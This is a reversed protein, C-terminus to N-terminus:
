SPPHESNGRLFFNPLSAASPNLLWSWQCGPAFLLALLRPGWDTARPLLECPGPYHRSSCSHFASHWSNLRLITTLNRDSKVSKPNGQPVQKNTHIIYKIHFRRWGSPFHGLPLFPRPQPHGPTGVATSIFPAFSCRPRDCQKGRPPFHDLDPGQDSLVSSPKVLHPSLVTCFGLASAPRGWPWNQQPLTWVKPWGLM